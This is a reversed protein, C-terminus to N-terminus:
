SPAPAHRSLSLFHVSSFPSSNFANPKIYFYYLIYRQFINEVFLGSNKNHSGSQQKSVCSMCFPAETIFWPGSPHWPKPQPGGKTYWNYLYKLIFINVLWKGRTLDPTMEPRTQLRYFNSELAVRTRTVLELAWRQSACLHYVHFLKLTLFPIFDLYNMNLPNRM